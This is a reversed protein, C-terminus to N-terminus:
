GELAKASSAHALEGTALNARDGAERGARHADHDSKHARGKGLKMNEDVWTEVQDSRDRLVLDTGAAANTVVTKRQVWLRTAVREGFARIFSSRFVDKQQRSMPDWSRTAQDRLAAERPAIVQRQLSEWLFRVRAVDSEYGVLVLAKRYPVGRYSQCYGRCNLAPAISMGIDVLAYHQRISMETPEITVRIIKEAPDSGTRHAQVDADEIMWEAMLALAKESFAEREADTAGSDEAMAFLKSIKDLRAANTPTTM